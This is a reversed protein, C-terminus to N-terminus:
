NRRTEWVELRAAAFSREEGEEESDEGPASRSTVLNRGLMMTEPLGVGKSSSKQPSTAKKAGEKEEEEEEATSLWSTRRTRVCFQARQVERLTEYLM